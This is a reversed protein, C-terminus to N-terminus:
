IISLNDNNWLGHQTWPLDMDLGYKESLFM